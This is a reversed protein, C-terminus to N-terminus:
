QGGGGSVGFTLGAKVGFSPATIGSLSVFSIDSQVGLAVQDGVNYGLGLGGYGTFKNETASASLGSASAEVKFNTLGMGGILYVNMPSENMPFWYKVHAGGGLQTYKLDFTPDVTRLLDREETNLGNRAFSGDVGLAMQDTVMYDISPGAGFGMRAGLGGDLIKQSFDGMPMAIGGLLSIKWDGKAAQAEPVLVLLALAAVFLSTKRFM